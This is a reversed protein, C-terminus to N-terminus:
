YCLSYWWLMGAYYSVNEVRKDRHKTAYFYGQPRHQARHRTQDPASKNRKQCRLTFPASLKRKTSLGANRKGDATIRVSGDRQLRM